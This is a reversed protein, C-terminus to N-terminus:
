PRRSHAQEREEVIEVLQIDLTLQKGALVHNADVTVVDDAVELVEAALPQGPKIEFQLREGVRPDRTTGVRQRDLRLIRDPRWPGFGKEPPVVVQRTDGPQMGILAEELGPIIRREGLTVELPEERWSRDFVTENDLRGIYHVKVTDGPKARLM